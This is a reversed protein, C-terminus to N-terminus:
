KTKSFLFMIKLGTPTNGNKSCSWTKVFSNSQTVYGINISSILSTYFNPLCKSLKTFM